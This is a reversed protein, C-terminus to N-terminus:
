LHDVCGKRERERESNSVLGYFNRFAVGQGASKLPEHGGQEKGVKSERRVM